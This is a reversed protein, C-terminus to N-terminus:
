IKGAHDVQEINLHTPPSGQQGFEGIHTAYM